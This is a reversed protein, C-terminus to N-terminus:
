EGADSRRRNAVVQAVLNEIRELHGILENRLKQLDGDKIYNESAYLKHSQLDKANQKVDSALSALWWGFGTVVVSLLGVIITQPDITM